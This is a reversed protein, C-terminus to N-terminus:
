TNIKCQKNYFKMFSRVAEEDEKSKSPEFLTTIIGKEADDIRVIPEFHMHNVWAVIGTSQMIKENDLVADITEDQHVGCYAKKNKLDLFILNIGLVKSAFRIMVEDAWVKPSCFGDKEKQFTKPSRSKASLLDYQEKSFVKGFDCRFEYAIKKQNEENQLLYNNRNTIACVSHFFCSGDGLVGMRAYRGQGIMWNCHIDPHIEEIIMTEVPEDLPFM